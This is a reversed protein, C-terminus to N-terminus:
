SKLTNNNNIIIVIINTRKKSLRISLSRHIRAIEAEAETDITTLQLHGTQQTMQFTSIARGDKNPGM